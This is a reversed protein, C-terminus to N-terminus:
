PKWGKGSPAWNRWKRAATGPVSELHQLLQARAEAELRDALLEPILERMRECNM